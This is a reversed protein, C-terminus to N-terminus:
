RSAAEEVLKHVERVLEVPRYPKSLFHGHDPIETVEPRKNGSTILLLIQPWQEHVRRALEMGDIQGPMQIDTFLVRIDPRAELIRLASSASEAEVIEFGAEELFDTANLRLLAEDEVVLIVLRNDFQDNKM